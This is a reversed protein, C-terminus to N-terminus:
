VHSKKRSEMIVGCTSMYGYDVGDIIKPKWFAHHYVCCLFWRPVHRCGSAWRPPFVRTTEFKGCGECRWYKM